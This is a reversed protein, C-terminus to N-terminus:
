STTCPVKEVIDMFDEGNIETQIYIVCNREEEIAGFWQAGQENIVPIMHLFRLPDNWSIQLAKKGRKLEMKQAKSVDTAVCM